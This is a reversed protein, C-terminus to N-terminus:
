ELDYLVFEERNTGDYINYEIGLVYEGISFLKESYFWDETTEQGDEQFIYEYGDGCDRRDVVTLLYYDCDDLFDLSTDATTTIDPVHPRWVTNECGVTLLSLMLVAIILLRKM